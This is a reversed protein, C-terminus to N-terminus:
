KILEVLKESLGQGRLAKAIIKGDKDILFNQPIGQVGYLAAISSKWGKLDSIHPWTLQDESIASVWKEKEQDLSVGLIEFGNAKYNNYLKVVNPNEQRCPGCWSAWFDILVYKGKFQSLKLVKGDPTMGEFDPAIANMATKESAEVMTKLRTGFFSNKVEESLLKYLGSLDLDGGSSGSMLGIYASLMSTPHKKAFDVNKVNSEKEMNMLISTISDMARTDNTSQASSGAQMLENYRGELDSNLKKFEENLVNTPTGSVESESISNGAGKITIDGPETFLRIANNGDPFALTALRTEKENLKFTFKGGRIPFTDTMMSDEDFVRYLTLTGDPYDTIEGSLNIRTAPDEKKCAFLLIILLTFLSSFKNM